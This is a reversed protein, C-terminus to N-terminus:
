GNFIPKRKTIFANTGEIFDNSGFCKEFEQIEISFGDVNHSFFANTTNIISKIALPSNYIIKTLLEISKIILNESQVIYNLLGLKKAENANISDGTLLLEMAKTKGIIQLLRQSGGYGPIIGLKVEPQGFIATETGIRLHCAMAVECGGGLAYGNIAAIVPKPCEEIIKLVRQGNIVMEKGQEKSYDSFEKIDAGAIFAKEGAGTLIIGKIKEKTYGIIMAQELESLTLKNLANLKDPRNITILLINNEQRTIINEFNMIM